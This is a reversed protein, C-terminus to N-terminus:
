VRNNLLTLTLTSLAIQGAVTLHFMGAKGAKGARDWWSAESDPLRAVAASEIDDHDHLRAHAHKRRVHFAGTGAQLVQLGLSASGLLPPNDSHPSKLSQEAISACAALFYLTHAVAALVVLKRNRLHTKTLPVPPAPTAPSAAVESVQSHQPPPKLKKVAMTAIVAGLTFIIKLIECVWIATDERDTTATNGNGTPVTHNYTGAGSDINVISLGPM